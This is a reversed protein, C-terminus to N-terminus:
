PGSRRALRDDALAAYGMTSRIDAHGLAEQVAKIDNTKRPLETGFSHRFIAPAQSRRRHDVFLQNQSL